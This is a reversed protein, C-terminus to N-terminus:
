RRDALAEFQHSIGLRETNKGSVRLVFREGNVTIRYNNNTLGTIREVQVREADYWAPIRRIISKLTEKESACGEIRAM